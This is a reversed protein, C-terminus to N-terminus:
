RKRLTELLSKLDKGLRELKFPNTPKGALMTQITQFESFSPMNGGGFPPRGGQTQKARQNDMFTLQKESLGKELQVLIKNATRSEFDPRVPLGELIPILKKAQAKNIALGKQKDMQGLLAPFSMLELMPRVAEIQKPDINPQAFTLGLLLMALIPLLKKM